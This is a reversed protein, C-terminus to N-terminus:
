QGLDKQKLPNCDLLHVSISHFSLEHPTMQLDMRYPGTVLVNVNVINKLNVIM